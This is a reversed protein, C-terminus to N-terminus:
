SAIRSVLFESLQSGSNMVDIKGSLLSQCQVANVIRTINKRYRPPTHNQMLVEMRSLVVYLITNTPMTVIQDIYYSQEGCHKVMNGGYQRKVYRKM